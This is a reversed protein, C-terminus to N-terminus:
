AMLGGDVSHVTGTCYAADESLLFAVLSAVEEPRGDRAIPRGGGGWPGMGAEQQLTRVMPSDIAGPAVANVRIGFGGNEIAASATLAVVARKSAGYLSRDARGKLAAVSAFNVIAGGREQAIMQILCAKMVLFVARMNVQYVLDFDEATLSTIPGSKGLIGVANALLDVAGFREVVRAIAADVADPKALNVAITEIKESPYRRSLAELALGDRDLAAVKCGEEILRDVVAVGIAGGGGTVIAVKGALGRFAM